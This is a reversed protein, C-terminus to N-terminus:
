LGIAATSLGRIRVSDIFVSVIYPSAVVVFILCNGVLCDIGIRLCLRNAESGFVGDFIDDGFPLRNSSQESLRFAVNLM